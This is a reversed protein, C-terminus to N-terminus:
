CNIALKCKLTSFALEYAARHMEEDKVEPLRLGREKGYSVLRQAAPKELHNNQYIVSALLYVRDPFGQWSQIAIHLQPPAASTDSEAEDDLQILDKSSAIHSVSKQTKDTFPCRHRGKANKKEGDELTLNERACRFAHRASNDYNRKKFNANIKLQKQKQNIWTELQKWLNM